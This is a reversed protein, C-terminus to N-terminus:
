LSPGSSSRQPVHSESDGGMASDLAKVMLESRYIRLADQVLEFAAASDKVSVLKLAGASDKVSIYDEISIGGIECGEPIGREQMVTLAFSLGTSNEAYKVLENLVSSLLIGSNLPDAGRRLLCRVAEPNGTVAASMLPTSVSASKGGGRSCEVINVEAGHDLMLEILDSEGFSCAMMLGSNLHEKSLFPSGSALLYKAMEVGIPRAKQAVNTRTDLPHRAQNAERVWRLLTVNERVEESNAYSGNSQEVLDRVVDFWGNTCAQLFDTESPKAGSDLLLRSIEMNSKEFAFSIPTKFPFTAQFNIDAGHAILLKAAELHSGECANSLPRLVSYKPDNSGSASAGHSLATKMRAIDGSGSADWLEMNWNELNM